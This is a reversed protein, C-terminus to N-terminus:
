LCVLCGGDRAEKWLPWATVPCKNGRKRGPFGFVEKEWSVIIEAGSSPHLPVGMRKISKPWSVKDKHLKEEKPFKSLRSQKGDQELSGSEASTEKNSRSTLSLLLSGPHSMTFFRGALAPSVVKIEPDPFYRPSPFPM